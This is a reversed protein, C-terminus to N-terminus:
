DWEDRLTMSEELNKDEEDVLPTLIDIWTYGAVSSAVNFTHDEALPYNRPIFLVSNSTFWPHMLAAKAEIRSSPLYTLLGEVLSLVTSSESSPLHPLFKSLSQRSAEKFVLSSSGQIQTFGQSAEFGLIWLWPYPVSRGAM